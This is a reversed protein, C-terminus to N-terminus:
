IFNEVNIKLTNLSDFSCKEAIRYCFSEINRSVLGFLSEIVQKIMKILYKGPIHKLCLDNTNIKFKKKLKKHQAEFRLRKDIRRLENVIEQKYANLKNNKLSFNGNNFDLFREHNLSVNKLRPCKSQVVLHLEILENLANKIISIITSLNFQQNIEDRKLKPRESIIYDVMAQSEILHNEISYRELYFLNDNTKIRCLIDDFDKDVIYVKKKNGLNSASERIVNDKGNLPFIKEIKIDSFLNKLVCFFFNEQDEDEIYFSVDNFQFYFIDEALRYNLNKAPISEEFTIM